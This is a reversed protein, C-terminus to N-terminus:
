TGHIFFGVCGLIKTVRIKVLVDRYETTARCPMRENLPFFARPFLVTYHLKLSHSPNLIIEYIQLTNYKKDSVWLLYKLDSALLKQNFWNSCQVTYVISVFDNEIRMEIRVCLILNRSWVSNPGIALYNIEHTAATIRKKSFFIM